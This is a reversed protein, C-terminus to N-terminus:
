PKLIVQDLGVMYGKVAKENAGVIEITLKHDGRITL